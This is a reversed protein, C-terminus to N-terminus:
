AHRQTENLSTKDACVLLAFLLLQMFLFFISVTLKDDTSRVSESILKNSLPSVKTGTGLVKGKLDTISFLSLSILFILNLDNKELELLANPPLLDLGKWALDVQVGLLPRRGVATLSVRALKSLAVRLKILLAFFISLFSSIYRFNFSLLLMPWSSNLLMLFSFFSLLMIILLASLPPAVTMM